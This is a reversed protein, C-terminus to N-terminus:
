QASLATPETTESTGASDTRESTPQAPSSPAAGEVPSRSGDASESQVVDTASTDRTAPKEGDQESAEDLPADVASETAVAEELPAQDDSSAPQKQRAADVVHGANQTDMQEGEGNSRVSHHVQSDVGVCESPTTEESYDVTTPRHTYDLVTSALNQESNSTKTLDVGQEEDTKGQDPVPMEAQVPDPAEAVQMSEMQASVLVPQKGSLSQDAGSVTPEVNSSSEGQSGNFTDSPGVAENNEYSEVVAREFLDLASARVEPAEEKSVEQEPHHDHQQQQKKQESLVQESRARIAALIMDTGKESALDLELLRQEDLSAHSM